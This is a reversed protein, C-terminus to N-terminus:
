ARTASTRKAAPKAKETAEVAQDPAPTADATEVGDRVRALEARVEAARETRGNSEYAALERKLAVEYATGDVVGSDARARADEDLMNKDTM